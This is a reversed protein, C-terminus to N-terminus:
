QTGTLQRVETHLDEIPRLADSLRDGMRNLRCGILEQRAVHLEDVALRIRNAAFILAELIDGPVHSHRKLWLEAAAQRLVEPLAADCDVCLLVESECLQCKALEVVGPHMQCM